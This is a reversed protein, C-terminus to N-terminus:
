ELSQQQHLIARGTLHELSFWFFAVNFDKKQFIDAYIKNPVARSFTLYVRKPFRHMANITCEGALYVSVHLVSGMCLRVVM